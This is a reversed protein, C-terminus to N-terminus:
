DYVWRGDADRYVVVIVNKDLVARCKPCPRASVVKGNRKRKAAVYITTSGDLRARNARGVAHREACLGFGRGVSNWGWSLIHGAGDLLVAGVQVRCISRELIDTSLDKPNGKIM